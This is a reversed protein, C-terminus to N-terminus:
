EFQMIDFRNVPNYPRSNNTESVVLNFNKFIGLKAIADEIEHSPCFKFCNYQKNIGRRDRDRVTIIFYKCGSQIEADCLVCKHKQKAKRVDVYMLKGLM